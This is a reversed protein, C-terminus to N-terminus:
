NIEGLRKIVKHADSFFERYILFIVTGISLVISLIDSIFWAAMSGSFYYARIGNNFFRAGGSNIAALLVVREDDFSMEDHVIAGILICFHNFQRISLTFSLFAGVFIALMAFIHIQFDSLTRAAGGTVSVITMELNPLNGLLTFLAFLILVTTSAFFSINRMINGVLIGDLPTDRALAYKAWHRRHYEMLTSISPFKKEVLPMIVGYCFWCVLPLLTAFLTM